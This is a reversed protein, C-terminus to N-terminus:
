SESFQALTALDHVQVAERRVSVIGLKEWRSLLRSVTSVTTGTLQALYTQSLHIEGNEVGPGSRKSLRILERSLGSPVDDTSLERFRQEMEQRRQEVVRFTNHRLRPFADLLKILTVTDWILAKGAQAITRGSRWCPLSEASSLTANRARCFYDSCLGCPQCGLVVRITSSVSGKRKAVAQV